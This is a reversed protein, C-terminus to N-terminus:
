AASAQPNPWLEDITVGVRKAIYEMVKLVDPTRVKGRTGAVVRSVFSPDVGTKEAVEAMSVDKAVLLAKRDFRTPYVIPM